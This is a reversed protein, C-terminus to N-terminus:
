LHKVRPKMKAPAGKKHCCVKSHREIWTSLDDTYIVDDLTGGEELCRERFALPAVPNVERVVQRYKPGNYTQTKEM